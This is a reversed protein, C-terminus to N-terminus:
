YDIIDNEFLTRRSMFNVMFSAALEMFELLVNGKLLEHGKTSLITKFARAFNEYVGEGGGGMTAKFDDLHKALDADRAVSPSAGTGPHTAARLHTPTYDRPVPLSAFLPWHFVRDLSSSGSPLVPLVPASPLSPLTVV